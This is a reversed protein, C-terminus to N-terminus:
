WRPRGPQFSAAGPKRVGDDVPALALQADMQNKLEVVDYKNAFAGVDAAQVASLPVSSVVTLSHYFLGFDAPQEDPLEVVDKGFHESTLKARFYKSCLILITAHVHFTQQQEATHPATGVVVKLDPEDSYRTRKAQPDETADTPLPPRAAAAQPLALM